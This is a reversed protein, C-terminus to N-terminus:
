ITCVNACTITITEVVEGKLVSKDVVTNTDIDVYQYVYAKTGDPLYFEIKIQRYKSFDIM